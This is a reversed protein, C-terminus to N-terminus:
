EEEKEGLVDNELVIVGEAATQNGDRCVKTDGDHDVDEVDDELACGVGLQLRSGNTDGDTNSDTDAKSDEKPAEEEETREEAALDLITLVELPEVEEIDGKNALALLGGDVVLLDGLSIALLKSSVRDVRTIGLGVGRKDSKFLLLVPNEFLQLASDKGTKVLVNLGLLVAVDVGDVIMGGLKVRVGLSEEGGDLDDGGAKSGKGVTRVINGVGNAGKGGNVVDPLVGVDVDGLGGNRGPNKDKSANGNIKTQHGITVM